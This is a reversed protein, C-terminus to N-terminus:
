GGDPLRHLGVRQVGIGDTELTLVRHGDADLVRVGAQAAVVRELTWNSRFRLWRSRTTGPASAELMWVEGSRARFLGASAPLHTPWELREFLVEIEQRLGPDPDEGLFASLTADLVDATIPIPRADVGFRGELDGGMSLVDIRPWTGEAVLLRTGDSAFDPIRGLPHNNVTVGSRGPRAYMDDGPLEVVPRISRGEADFLDLVVSPRFTRYAAPAGREMRSGRAILTGDDLPILHRVPGRGPAGIRFTRAGSGDGAVITGRQTGRDFVLLSDGRYRDLRAIDLFEGPGQGRTGFSWLHRGDDSFARLEMAGADAVLLGDEVLVGGAVRSFVFPRDGEADGILLQPAELLVAPQTSVDSTVIRVGASDVSAVASGAEDDAGCAAILAVTLSLLRRRGRAEVRVGGM